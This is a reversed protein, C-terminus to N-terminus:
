PFSGGGSDTPTCFGQVCAEGSSCDEDGVCTQVCVGLEEFCFMGDACPNAEGCALACVGSEAPDEGPITLSLCSQPSPCVDESVTCVSACYGNLCVPAGQPCDADDQGGCPQQCLGSACEQDVACESSSGCQFRFVSPETAEIFCAGMGLMGLVGLMGLLGFSGLLGHNVPATRPTHM